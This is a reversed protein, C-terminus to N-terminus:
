FLYLIQNEKRDDFDDHKMCENAKYFKTSYVENAKHWLRPRAQVFSILDEQTSM